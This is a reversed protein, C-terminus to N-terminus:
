VDASVTCYSCLLASAGPHCAVTVVPAGEAQVRKNLERMFLVNCLKSQGQLTM